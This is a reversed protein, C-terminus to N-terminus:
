EGVVNIFVQLNLDPDLPKSEPQCSVIGCRRSLMEEVFTEPSIGWILTRGNSNGQM